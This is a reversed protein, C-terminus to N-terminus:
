AVSFLAQYDAGAVTAMAEIEARATKPLQGSAVFFQLDEATWNHERRLLIGAILQEVEEETWRRQTNPTKRPPLLDMADSTESIYFRGVQLDHQEAIRSIVQNVRFREPEGKRRRPM